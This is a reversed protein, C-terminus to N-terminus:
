FSVMQNTGDRNDTVNNAHTTYYEYGHQYNRQDLYPSRLAENRYQNLWFHFLTNETTNPLLYSRTTPFTKAEMERIRSKHVFNSTCTLPPTSWISNKLSIGLVPAEKNSAVTEISERNVHGSNNGFGLYNIGNEWYNYNPYIGYTLMLNYSITNLIMAAIANEVHNTSTWYGNGHNYNSPPLLPPLRIPPIPDTCNASPNLPESCNGLGHEINEVDWWLTRMNYDFRTEYDAYECRHNSSNDIDDNYNKNNGMLSILNQAENQSQNHHLIGIDVFDDNGESEVEDQLPFGSPASTDYTELIHYEEAEDGDIATEDVHHDEGDANKMNGNYNGEYSEDRYKPTITFTKNLSSESDGEVGSNHDNNYLEAGELKDGMNSNYYYNKDKGIAGVHNEIYDQSNRNQRWIFENNIELFGETSTNSNASNSAVIHCKIKGTIITRENNQVSGKKIYTNYGYRGSCLNLDSKMVKGRYKKTMAAQFRHFNKIKLHKTHYNLKDVEYGAACYLLYNQITTNHVGIYAQYRGKAKKQAIPKYINCRSDFRGDAPCKQTTQCFDGTFVAGFSKVLDEVVPKRINALRNKMKEAYIAAVFNWKEHGFMVANSREVERAAPQVTNSHIANLYSQLAQPPQTVNENRGVVPWTQLTANRWIDFSNEMEKSLAPFAKYYLNKPDTENNLNECNSSHKRTNNNHLKRIRPYKHNKGINHINRKDIITLSKSEFGERCM